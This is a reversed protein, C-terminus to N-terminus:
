EIRTKNQKLFVTAEIQGNKRCHRRGSLAPMGCVVRRSSSAISDISRATVLTRGHPQIKANGKTSNGHIRAHDQCTSRRRPSGFGFSTHLHASRHPFGYCIAHVASRRISQRKVGSVWPAVPLVTCYPGGGGGRNKKTIRACHVIGQAVSRSSARLVRMARFVDWTAAHCQAYMRSRRVMHFRILSRSRQAHPPMLLVQLLAAHSAHCLRMLSLRAPHLTTYASYMRCPTATCRWFGAILFSALIVIKIDNTGARLNSRVSIGQRLIDSITHLLLLFNANVEQLFFTNGKMNSIM